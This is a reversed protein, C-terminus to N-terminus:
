RRYLHSYAHRPQPPPLRVLCSGSAYFLAYTTVYLPYDTANTWTFGTATYTVDPFNSQPAANAPSPLAFPPHPDAAAFLPEVARWRPAVLVLVCLNRIM